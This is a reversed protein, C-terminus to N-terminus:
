LRDALCVVLEHCAPSVDDLLGKVVQNNASRKYHSREEDPDSISDMEDRSGILSPEDHDADKHDGVKVISQDVQEGTVIDTSVLRNRENFINKISQVWVEIGQPEIVHSYQDNSDHDRVHVPWGKFEEEKITDAEEITHDILLSQAWRRLRGLSLALTDLREHLDVLTLLEREM